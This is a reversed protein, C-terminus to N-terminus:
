DEIHRSPPIACRVARLIADYAQMEPLWPADAFPANRQPRADTREALRRDRDEQARLRAAAARADKLQRKIIM